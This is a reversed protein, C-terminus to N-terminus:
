PKPYVSGPSRPPINIGLFIGIGKMFIELQSLYNHPHGFCLAGVNGLQFNNAVGLTDGYGYM